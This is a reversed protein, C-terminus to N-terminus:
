LNAGAVGIGGGGLGQPGTLITGSLNASRRRFREDKLRAKDADAVKPPEPPLPAPPPAKPKSVCM